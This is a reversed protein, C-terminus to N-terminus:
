FLQLYNNIHVQEVIIPDDRSFSMVYNHLPDLADRVAIYGYLEVLGGDVHIKALKISFIQLMTRPGRLISRACAPDSLSMPKLWTERPDAFHFREKWRETARYISGDRHRSRPLGRLPYVPHRPIQAAWGEQLPKDLKDGKVRTSIPMNQYGHPCRPLRRVPPNPAAMPPSVRRALAPPASAMFSILARSHHSLHHLATSVDPRGSLRFFQM